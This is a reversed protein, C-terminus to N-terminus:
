WCCGGLKVTIRCLVHLISMFHNEVGGAKDTQKAKCGRGVGLIIFRNWLDQFLNYPRTVMQFCTGSFFNLVM